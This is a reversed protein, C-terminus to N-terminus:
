RSCWFKVAKTIGSIHVDALLTDNFQRTRPVSVPRRHCPQSMRKCVSCPYRTACKIMEESGAADTIMKALTSNQPHGLNTHIRIIARKLQVPFKQRWERTAEDEESPFATTVEDDLPDCSRVSDKQTSVNWLCVEHAVFLNALSSHVLRRSM